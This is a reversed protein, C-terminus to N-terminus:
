NNAVELLYTHGGVIGFNVRDDMESHWRDCFSVGRKLGLYFLCLPVHSDFISIYEAM